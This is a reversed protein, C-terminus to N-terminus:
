CADGRCGIFIVCPRTHRLREACLCTLVLCPWRASRSRKLVQQHFAVASCALGM